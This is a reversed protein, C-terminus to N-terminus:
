VGRQRLRKPRHQQDQDQRQEESQEAVAKRKQRRSGPQNDLNHSSDELGQSQRDQSNEQKSNAMCAVVWAVDAAASTWSDMTASTAVTRWWMLSLLVVLLGNKGPNTLSEWSGIGDQVPWGDANLVRWEPQMGAWWQQWQQAYEVEDNIAPHRTLERRHVRMWEAVQSPRNKTPLGKASTQWSYSRELVTWWEAARM